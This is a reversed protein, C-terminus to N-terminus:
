YSETPQRKTQRRRILPTIGIAVTTLMLLGGAALDPRADELAIALAVGAVATFAVVRGLLWKSQTEPRILARMGLLWLLGFYLAYGWAARTIDADDATLHLLVFPATAFV